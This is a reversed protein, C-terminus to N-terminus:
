VCPKLNHWQTRGSPGGIESKWICIGYCYKSQWVNIKQCTMVFWHNNHYYPGTIYQQYHLITNMSQIQKCCCSNNRVDRTVCTTRSRTVSVLLAPPAPAAPGARHARRSPRARASAMSSRTRGSGGWWVGLLLYMCIETWFTCGSMGWKMGGMCPALKISLM